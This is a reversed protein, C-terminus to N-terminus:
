SNLKMVAVRNTGVDFMACIMRVLESKVRESDGGDCVVSVGMVLPPKTEVVASGKFSNAEGRAFTIFVRCRGVGDVSACLAGLESELKERYIELSDNEEKYDEDSGGSFSILLVGVIAALAILIYRGRGKLYAFRVNDM